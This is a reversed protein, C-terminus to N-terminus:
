TCEGVFIGTYFMITLWQNLFTCFNIVMEQVPIPHNKYHSQLLLMSASLELNM